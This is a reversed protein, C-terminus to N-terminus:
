LFMDENLFEEMEGEKINHKKMVNLNYILSYLHLREDQNKFSFAEEYFKKMLVIIDAYDKTKIKLKDAKNAYIQPHRCMRCWRDMQYDLPVVKLAEFDIAKVKGDFYLFNDFHVDIYSLYGKESQSIYKINESFFIMVRQLMRKSLEISKIASEYSNTLEKRFDITQIPRIKTIEKLINAIQEVCNEREKFSLKNWISYLTDGKSRTMVIYKISNVEGTDILSSRYESILKSYILLENSYYKKKRGEFFKIVYNESLFVRDGNVGSKSPVFKERINNKVAITDVYRMMDKGELRLTFGTNCNCLSKVM